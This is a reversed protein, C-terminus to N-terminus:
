AATESGTIPAAPAGPVAEVAPAARVHRLRRAFVLVVDTRGNRPVALSSFLAYGQGALRNAEDAIAEPDAGEVNVSIYHHRRSHGRTPLPRNTATSM